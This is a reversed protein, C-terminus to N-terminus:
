DNAMLQGDLVRVVGASGDVELIQGDHFMKTARGTGVVAPIGYERAVVACHSLVGGTDTVVAAATAFLPTWPPMTAKAVLVDGPQLKGAEALSHVVKATGRVVGPSAAIGTLAQFDDSSDPPRVGIGHTKVGLAFVSGADIEFPPMTGLLPPPTLHRFLRLEAKRENVRQQLSPDRSKEENREPHAAGGDLLEDATLYFVDDATALAGAETLRRGFELALRRMQYFLREVVWHNDERISGGAQAAKLLTEFRAVVPQPYGALRARAEAVAKEREAALKAQEAEPDADTVTTYAKLCEVAPTPDEIWSPEAMGAAFTNLRQGYRNLYARLDGLFRRGEATQELAPIVDAAACEALVQRVGPMSLAARSLQWLARDGELSFNDFGQLLRLADLSTAGDFLECYLDEFESMAIDGPFLAHLTGLREARKLSEALHARLQELSLGRLDISEFYAFHQNIEPLLEDRWYAESRALTPNLRDLIQKAQGAMIRGMLLKILGPAVRNVAGITKMVAEPPGDTPVGAGYCYGNFFRVRFAISMGLQELALNMGRIFAADVSCGLPPIPESVHTDRMWTLKSDAPDTWSIPFDEPTPIPQGPAAQMHTSSM